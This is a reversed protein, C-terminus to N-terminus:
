TGEEFTLKLSWMNGTQYSYQPSKNLYYYGNIRNNNTEFMATADFTIFMPRTVSTYDFLELLSDLEDKYLHQIEGGVIKQTNIDDVFKQGYRNESITCNTKQEFTLPYTFDLAGPASKPGLYIKSIECYGTTSTMVLRAFRYNQTTAWEYAGWGYTQDLTIAQSVAPSGWSNTANLEVTLTSLAFGLMPNDVICFADIDVAQGFDIVMTDSNSTSRYVKTRRDDQLNTLPFQASETSATITAAHVQNLGYYKVAM